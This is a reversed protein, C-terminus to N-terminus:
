LQIDILNLAMEERWHIWAHMALFIRQKGNIHFSSNKHGSSIELVLVGFSFVDSKVSFKGHHVYELAM